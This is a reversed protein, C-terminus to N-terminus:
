KETEPIKEPHERSLGYQTDLSHILSLIDNKSKEKLDIRYRLRPTKYMSFDKTIRRRTREETPTLFKPLSKENRQSMVSVDAYSYDSSLVVGLVSIIGFDHNRSQEYAIIDESAYTQIAQALREQRINM